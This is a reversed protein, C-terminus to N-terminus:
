RRCCIPSLIIASGLDRSVIMATAHRRSTTAESRPMGFRGAPVSIAPLPSRITASSTAAVSCRRMSPRQMVAATPLRSQRVSRAMGFRGAVRNRNGRDGCGNHGITYVRCVQTSNRHAALPVHRLDGNRKLPLTSHWRCTMMRFM